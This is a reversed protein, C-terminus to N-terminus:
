NFCKQNYGLPHNPFYLESEQFSLIRENGDLLVGLSGDDFCSRIQGTRGYTEKSKKAVSVFEFMLDLKAKNRNSM